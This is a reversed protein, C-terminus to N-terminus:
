VEHRRGQQHGEDADPNNEGEVHKPFAAVSQRGASTADAEGSMGLSALPCDKVLSRCYKLDSPHFRYGPRVSVHSLMEPRVRSSRRRLQDFDGCCFLSILAPIIAPLIPEITPIARPGIPEQKALLSAFRRPSAPNATRPVMARRAPIQKNRAADVGARASLTSSKVVLRISFRWM